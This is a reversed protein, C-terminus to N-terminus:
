ATGPAAGNAARRSIGIKTAADDRFDIGASATVNSENTERISIMAGAEAIPTRPRALPSPEKKTAKSLMM